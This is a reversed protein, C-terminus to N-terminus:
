LWRGYARANGTHIIRADNVFYGWTPLVALVLGREAAFALLHEVHRFFDENPRSPDGDCWPEDGYRNPLPRHGEMGTGGSWTLVAQIVTFGKAARNTLYMEAEERTYGSFLPWATDGLWFFPEGDAYTFHRGNASVRIPGKFVSM